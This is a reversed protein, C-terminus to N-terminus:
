TESKYERMCTRRERRSDIEFCRERAGEFIERVAMAQESSLDLHEQMREMRKEVFRSDHASALDGTLVMLLSSTLLSYVFNKM